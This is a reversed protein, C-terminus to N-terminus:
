YDKALLISKTAVIAAIGPALLFGIVPISLLGLFISGTAIAITFHKRVYRKADKIKYRREMFYDMSGFGAYYAQVIFILPTTIIIAGPIVFGIILLIVTFLLEKFINSLSISLGRIIDKGFTVLEFPKRESIGLYKEEISQSLPSFVPSTLILVLYKYVILGLAILSLRGGWGSINTILKKGREFPYYEALFNGLNDGFTWSGYFILFGIIASILGSILFFKILRYKVIMNPFSAIARLCYGIDKIM